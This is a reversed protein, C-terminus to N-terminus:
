PPETSRCFAPMVRVLTLWAASSTPATGTSTAIMDAAQRLLDALGRAQAPNATDSPPTASIVASLAGPGLAPPADAIPSPSTRTETM